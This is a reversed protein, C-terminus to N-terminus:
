ELWEVEEISKLNLWEKRNKDLNKFTIPLDTKLKNQSGKTIIGCGCDSDIVYMELDDREKRLTVWAKWVDGNWTTNPIHERVQDKEQAPNMDHCVIVGGSQLCNLSNIIDKHVQEALHLGDIFIIDYHAGNGGFFKDSTLKYTANNEFPDVSAKYVAKIQTFNTNDGIGIELYSLAGNKKVLKNIIETRKM